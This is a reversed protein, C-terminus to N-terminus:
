GSWLVRRIGQQLLPVNFNVILAMGIGSARLYSIAQAVHVGAIRDISKLEVVLRDDIVLDLRFQGIAEGKFLVDLLVESM